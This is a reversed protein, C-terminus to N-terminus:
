PYGRIQEFFGHVQWAGKDRAIRPAALLEDLTYNSKLEFMLAAVDNLGVLVCGYGGSDRVKNLFLLQAESVEHGLVKSTGRKPLKYIFKAEVGYYNGSYVASFDPLGVRYMDNNTWVLSHAYAAQLDKRFSAKFSSEDTAL